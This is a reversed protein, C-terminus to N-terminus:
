ALLRARKRSTEQSNQRPHHNPLPQKTQPQSLLEMVNSFRLRSLKISPQENLQPDHYPLFKNVIQDVFVFRCRFFETSLQM